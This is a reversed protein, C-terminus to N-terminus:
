LCLKLEKLSNNQSIPLKNLDFVLLHLSHFTYLNFITFVSIKFHKNRQLNIKIFYIKKLSIIENKILKKLSNNFNDKKLIEQLQNYIVQRNPNM